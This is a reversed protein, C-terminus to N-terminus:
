VRYANTILKYWIGSLTIAEDISYADVLKFTTHWLKGQDNSARYEIKYTNM